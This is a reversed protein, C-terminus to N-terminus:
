NKITYIKKIKFSTPEIVKALSSLKITVHPSSNTYELMRKEHLVKKRQTIKNQLSLSNKIIDEFSRNDTNGEQLEVIYSTYDNDGYCPTLILGSDYIPSFWCKDEIM